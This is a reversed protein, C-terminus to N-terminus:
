DLLKRFEQTKIMRKYDPGALGSGEASGVGNGAAQGILGLPFWHAHFHGHAKLLKKERLAGCGPIRIKARFIM